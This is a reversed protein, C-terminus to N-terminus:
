TWRSPLGYIFGIVIIGSSTSALWPCTPIRVSVPINVVTQTIISNVDFWVASNNIPIIHDNRFRIKLPRFGKGSYVPFGSPEIGRASDDNPGARNDDPNRNPEQATGARSVHDLSCGIIWSEWESASDHTDRQAPESECVISLFAARVGPTGLVFVSSQLGTSIWTSHSHAHVHSLPPNLGAYRM